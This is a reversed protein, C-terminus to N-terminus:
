SVGFNGESSQSKQDSTPPFNESKIETPLCNESKIKTSKFSNLSVENKEKCSEEQRNVTKEGDGKATEFEPNIPETKVTLGTSNKLTDQLDDLKTKTTSRNMEPITTSQDMKTKTTEKSKIDTSQSLESNISKISKSFGDM